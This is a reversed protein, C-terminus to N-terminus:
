VLREELGDILRDLDVMIIERMYLVLGPEDSIDAILLQAEDLLARIRGNKIASEASSTAAYGFEEAVKQMSNGKIRYSRWAKLQKAATINSDAIDHLKNKIQERAEEFEAQQDPALESTDATQTLPSTTSGDDEEDDFITVTDNQQIYIRESVCRTLESMSISGPITTLISLILEELESRRDKTWREEYLLLNSEFESAAEEPSIDDPRNNRSLKEPSSATREKHSHIKGENELKKLTASFIRLFGAYEPSQNVVRNAYITNNCITYFYGDPKPPPANKKGALYQWYQVISEAAIDEIEERSFKQNRKILISTINAFAAEGLMRYHSDTLDSGAAIQRTVFIVKESNTM